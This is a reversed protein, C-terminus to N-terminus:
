EKTGVETQLEDVGHLGGNETVDSAGVTKVGEMAVAAGAMALTDTKPGLRPTSGCSGLPLLKDSKLYACCEGILTISRTSM